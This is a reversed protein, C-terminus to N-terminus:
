LVACSSSMVATIMLTSQATSAVREGTGYVTGDLPQTLHTPLTPMKEMDL